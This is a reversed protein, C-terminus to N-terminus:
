LGSAAAYDVLFDLELGLTHRPSQADFHSYEYFLGISRKPALHYRGLLRHQWLREGQIVSLETLPILVFDKFYHQARVQYFQLEKPAYERSQYRAAAGLSSNATAKYSLESQLYLEHHAQTDGFKPLVSIAFSNDLRLRGQPPSYDAKLASIWVPTRWHNDMARIEQHFEFLCDEPQNCTSVHLMACAQNHVNGGISLSGQWRNMAYRLEMSNLRMNQYHYTEFGRSLIPYSDIGSKGGFGHEKSGAAFRWDGQIVALYISKLRLHSEDFFQETDVAMKFITNKYLVTDLGFEARYLEDWSLEKGRQAEDYYSSHLSQWKAYLPLEIAQGSACICIMLFLLWWKHMMTM